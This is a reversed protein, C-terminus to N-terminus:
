GDLAKPKFEGCTKNESGVPPFLTLFAGQGMNQVVPPFRVCASQLNIPDIIQRYVCQGCTM